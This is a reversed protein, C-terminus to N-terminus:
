RAPASEAGAPAAVRSISAIPHASGAIIVYAWKSLSGSPDAGFAVTEVFPLRYAPSQLTVEYWQRHWDQVLLHSDDVARWNQIGGRVAFPITVDDVSSAGSRSGPGITACAALAVSVVMAAFIARRLRM